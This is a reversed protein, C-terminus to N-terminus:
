THLCLHHVTYGLFLIRRILKSQIISCAMQANKEKGKHLVMRFKKKIKCGRKGTRGKKSRTNTTAEFLQCSRFSQIPYAANSEPVGRTLEHRSHPKLLIPLPEAPSCGTRRTRTSAHAHRISSETANFRYPRLSQAWTRGRRWTCGRKQEMLVTLRSYNQKFNKRLDM